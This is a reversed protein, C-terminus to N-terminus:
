MSSKVSDPVVLMSCERNLHIIRSTKFDMCPMLGAHMWFVGKSLLLLRNKESAFFCCCSARTWSARNQPHMFYMYTTIEWAFYISTKCQGTICRPELHSSRLRKLWTQVDDNIEKPRIAVFGDAFAHQDIHLSILLEICTFKPSVFPPIAIFNLYWQSSHTSYDYIM